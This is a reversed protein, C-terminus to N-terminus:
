IEMWFEEDDSTESLYDRSNGFNRYMITTIIREDSAIKETSLGNMSWKLDVDSKIDNEINQYNIEFDVDYKGESLRYSFELYKDNSGAFARFVLLSDNQKVLNFFLDESEIPVVKEADVLSLSMQLLKKKLCHYLIIKM